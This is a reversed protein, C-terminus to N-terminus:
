IRAVRELVLAAWITAWREGSLPKSMTSEVKARARLPGHISPRDSCGPGSCNCQQSGHPLDGSPHKGSFLPQLLNLRRGLVTDDGLRSNTGTQNLNNAYDNQTTKLM